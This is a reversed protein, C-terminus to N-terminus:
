DNTLRYIPLVKALLSRPNYVFLTVGNHDLDHKWDKMIGIIPIATEHLDSSSRGRRLDTDRTENDSLWFYRRDYLDIGVLVINKYGLLYAINVADSLTGGQHSIAFIDEGMARNRKIGFLCVKKDLFLKLSFLNRVASPVITYDLKYRIFFTTDKYCKNNFMKAHYEFIKEYCKKRFMLSGYNRIGEIEGCIHYDIPLFRGRFFYNFSLTDGIDRMKLFDNKPIDNISHGSGLIFITDKTVTSRIDEISTLSCLARINTFTSVFTYYIVLPNFIRLPRVLKLLFKFLIEKDM